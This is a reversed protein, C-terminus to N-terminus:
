PFPLAPGRKQLNERGVLFARQNLDAFQAPVREQVAELWLDIPIHPFFASLAGLLVVVVIFVLLGKNYM